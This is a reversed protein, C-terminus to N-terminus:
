ISESVVGLRYYILIYAYVLISRDGYLFVENRPTKTALFDAVETGEKTKKRRDEELLFTHKKTHNKGFNEM